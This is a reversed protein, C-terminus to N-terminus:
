PAGADKRTVAQFTSYGERSTTLTYFTDVISAALNAEQM